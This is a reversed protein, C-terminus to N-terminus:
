KSPAVQSADIRLEQRVCSKLLAVLEKLALNTAGLDKANIAHTLGQIVDIDSQRGYLHFSRVSANLKEIVDPRNFAAGDKELENWVPLFSEMAKIRFDLRKLDINNARNLRGTIFWGISVILGGVIAAVLPIYEKL